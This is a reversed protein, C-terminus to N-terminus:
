IGKQWSNIMLGLIISPIAFVSISVLYWMNTEWPYEGKPFYISHYKWFFIGVALPLAPISYGFANFSNILKWISNVMDPMFYHWQALLAFIIFIASMIFPVWPADPLDKFSGPLNAAVTFAHTSIVSVIPLTFVSFLILMITQYSPFLITMISSIFWAVAILVLGIASAVLLGRLPKAVQDGRNKKQVDSFHFEIFSHWGRIDTFKRSQVKGNPKSYYTGWHLGWILSCVVVWFLIGISVLLWKFPVM